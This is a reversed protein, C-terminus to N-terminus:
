IKIYDSSNRFLSVNDIVKQLTIFLLQLSLTHTQPSTSIWHLKKDMNNAVPGARYITPGLAVIKSSAKKYKIIKKIKM